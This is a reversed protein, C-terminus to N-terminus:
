RGPRRQIVNGPQLTKEVNKKGNRSGASRLAYPVNPNPQYSVQVEIYRDAGSGQVIQGNHSIVLVKAYNGEETQVIFAFSKDTNLVQLQEIKGANLAENEPIDSLSNIDEYRVISVYTRKSVTGNPYEFDDNVYISQGPAGIAPWGADTDDFVLDWEDPQNKDLVLPAGNDGDLDVGQGGITSANSYLRFVQSLRAPSWSFQVPESSKGNTSHSKLTFTYVTGATLGGVTYSTAQKDLLIPAASGPSYSLEYGAFEPVGADSAATWRLALETSSVTHVQLGTPAQPVYEPATTVTLPLEESELGDTTRAKLLFTYQTNATLGTVTHLTAATGLTISQGNYSLVYGNFEPRTASTSATWALDIETPRIDLTRFDAPPAPAVPLTPTKISFTAAESELGDTSVAKLSFTYNTNATLGNVTYSTASKDIGTITTDAYSLTYGALGLISRGSKSGGTGGPLKDAPATWSLTVSTPTVVGATVNTPTSPPVPEPQVPDDGCSQLILLMVLPLLWRLASLQRM